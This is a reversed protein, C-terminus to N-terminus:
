ERNSNLYNQLEQEARQLDVEALPLKQEYQQRLDPHDNWFIIHEQISRVEAQAEKVGRRLDNERQVKQQIRASEQQRQRKQEQEQQQRQREQEQEQQAQRRLGEDTCHPSNIGFATCGFRKSEEQRRRDQENLYEYRNADDCDTGITVRSERRSNEGRVEEREDDGLSEDSCSFVQASAPKLPEIGFGLVHNLSFGLISVVFILYKM